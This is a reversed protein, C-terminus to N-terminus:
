DTTLRRNQEEMPKCLVGKTTNGLFRDSFSDEIGKRAFAGRPGRRDELWDEARFFLHEEVFPEEFFPPNKSSPTEEFFPPSSPPKKTRRTKIDFLEGMKSKRLSSRLVGIKLRRDESSFISSGRDEIKSRQGRLIPRLDSPLLPSPHFKKKQLVFFKGAEVKETRLVFFRGDEMKEAPLM